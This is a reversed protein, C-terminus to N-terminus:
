EDRALMMQEGTLAYLTVNSGDKKFEIPQPGRDWHIDVIQLLDGDEMSPHVWGPVSVWTYFAGIQLPNGEVDLTKRGGKSLASILNDFGKQNM